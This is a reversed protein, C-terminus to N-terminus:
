PRAQLRATDIYGREDIELDATTPHRASIASIYREVWMEYRLDVRRQYVEEVQHWIVRAV